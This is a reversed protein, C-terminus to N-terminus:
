TVEGLTVTLPLAWKWVQFRRDWFGISEDEIDHPRRWVLKFPNLLACNLRESMRCTNMSSESLSQSSWAGPMWPPILCALSRVERLKCGLSADLCPVHGLSAFSSSVCSHRIIALAMFFFVCPQTISHSPPLSQTPQTPHPPSPSAAQSTSSILPMLLIRLNPALASQVAM